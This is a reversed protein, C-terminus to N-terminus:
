IRRAQFVLVGLERLQDVPGVTAACSSLRPEPVESLARNQGTMLSRYRLASNDAVVSGRCVIESREVTFGAAPSFATSLLTSLRQVSSIGQGQFAALRQREAPEALDYAVRLMQTLMVRHEHQSALHDFEAVALEAPFPRAQFLSIYRHLPRQFPHGRRQLVDVIVQLQLVSVLFLDEPWASVGHLASPDTFVNPLPVAGIAPLREFLDKLYPHQDLWHVVPAGPRLVRALERVVAPLDELVDFVCLAVAGAAQSDAFPLSTGAVRRVHAGPYRKVLERVCAALPETHVCRAAVDAPLLPLLQGDGAGLEIIEGQSSFRAADIGEGVVRGLLDVYPARAQAVSRIQKLVGRERVSVASSSQTKGRKGRSM